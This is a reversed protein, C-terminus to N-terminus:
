GCTSANVLQKRNISGSSTKSENGNLKVAAASSRSHILANQHWKKASIECWINSSSKMKGLTNAKKKEDGSCANGDCEHFKLTSCKKRPQLKKEVAM